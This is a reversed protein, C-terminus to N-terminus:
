SLRIGSIGGNQRSYRRLADVTAAPDGGNVNIIVSQPITGTERMRFQAASSPMNVNFFGGFEPMKKPSFLEPGGFFGSIDSLLKAGSMRMALNYLDV